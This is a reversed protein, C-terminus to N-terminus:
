SLRQKSRAVLMLVNERSEEDEVGVGSGGKETRLLAPARTVGLSYGNMVAQRILSSACASIVSMQMIFAFIHHRSTTYCAKTSFIGPLRRCCKSELSQGPDTEIPAPIENARLHGQRSAHPVRKLKAPLSSRIHEISRISIRLQDSPQIRVCTQGTQVAVSM